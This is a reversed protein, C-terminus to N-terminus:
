HLILGAAAALMLAASALMTLGFGPGRKAPDKYYSLAYLIRGVIWLVGGAAAWRDSFFVACLWLAPLFLVLQEVTNMQVRLASQFGLPGDTSPATVKYKVRARGANTLIWIYVVLAALTIWATWQM